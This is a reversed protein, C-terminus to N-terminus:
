IDAQHDAFYDWLHKPAKVKQIVRYVGWKLECIAGEARKQWQSYPEAINHRVQYDDVVRKWKGKTMELADDTMLESPIGMGCIIDLLADGAQGKTRMHIFRTFNADHVCIQGMSNNRLAKVSAFMTNSYFRGHRGALQDYRM